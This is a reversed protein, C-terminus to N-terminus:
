AQAREEGIDFNRCVEALMAPAHRELWDAYKNVKASWKVHASADYRPDEARQMLWFALDWRAAELLMNAYKEARKQRVHTRWRSWWTISM